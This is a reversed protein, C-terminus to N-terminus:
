TPNLKRETRAPLSLSLSISLSFSAFSLPPQTVSRRLPLFSSFAHICRGLFVCAQVCCLRIKHRSGHVFLPFTPSPPHLALLSSLITSRPEVPVCLFTRLVGAGGTIPDLWRPEWALEKRLDRSDHLRRTHFSLAKLSLPKRDFISPHSLFRM